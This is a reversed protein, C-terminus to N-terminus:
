ESSTAEIALQQLAGAGHERLLEIAGAKVAGVTALSVTVDNRVEIRKVDKWKDPRRNFLWMQMAAINGRRATEYLTKEINGDAQTCAFNILERFEPEACKRRIEAPSWGVEIGANFESTGAAVKELFALHETIGEFEEDYYRQVVSPAPEDPEPNEPEDM